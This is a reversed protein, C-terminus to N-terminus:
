LDILLYVLDSVHTVFNLSFSSIPAFTSSSLIIDMNQRHLDFVLLLKLRWVIQPVTMIVCYYEVSVAEAEDGDHSM